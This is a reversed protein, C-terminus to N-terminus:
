VLRAIFHILNINICLSPEIFVLRSAPGVYVPIIKGDLDMSLFGTEVRYKDTHMATGALITLQLTIKIHEAKRIGGAISRCRREREVFSIGNSHSGHRSDRHCSRNM